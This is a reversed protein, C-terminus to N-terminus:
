YTCGLIYPVYVINPKVSKIYKEINPLLDSIKNDGLSSPEFQLNIFGDFKYFKKVKKIENQREKFYSHEKNLDTIVMWYIKDGKKKHKLLTGGCGLLKTM